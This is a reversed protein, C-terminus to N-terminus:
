DTIMDKVNMPYCMNSHLGSWMNDALIENVADTPHFQDWWIYTSANRCAMETSICMIWGKYKGFGCCAESTVNFGVYDCKKGEETSESGSSFL